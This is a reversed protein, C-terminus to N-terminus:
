MGELELQGNQRELEKQELVELKKLDKKYEEIQHKKYKIKHRIEELTM